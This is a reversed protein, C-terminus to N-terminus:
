EKDWQAKALIFAQHFAEIEADIITNTEGNKSKSVMMYAGKSNSNPHMTFAIGELRNRQIKDQKETILGPDEDNVDMYFNSVEPIDYVVEVDGTTVIVKVSSYEPM